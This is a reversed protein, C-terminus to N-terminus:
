VLHVALAMFLQGGIERLAKLANALQLGFIVLSNRIKFFTVFFSDILEL